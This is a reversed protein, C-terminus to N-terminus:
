TVWNEWIFPKYAPCVFINLASATSPALGPPSPGSSPPGLAAAPASSDANSAVRLLGTNTALIVGWTNPGPILGDLQLYGEFDHAYMATAVGVQKLNSVCKVAKARAKAQALSPLLLSALIAIIAIVVLLEILTFAKASRRHRM